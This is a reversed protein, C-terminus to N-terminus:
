IKHRQRGRGAIAWRVLADHGLDQLLRAFLNKLITMGPAASGSARSGPQTM